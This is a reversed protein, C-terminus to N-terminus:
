RPQCCSKPRYEAGTISLQNLTVIGLVSGVLVATMRHAISSPRHAIPSKMLALIAWYIEFNLLFNVFIKQITLLRLM